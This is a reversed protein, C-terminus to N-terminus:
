LPIELSACFRSSGIPLLRVEAEKMGRTTCAPTGIRIGSPRLPPRPDDPVVQKNTLTIGVADLAQEAVKEDIGFSESTDIVLLHNDTGRTVLTVDQAPLAEALAKANRLGKHNGM